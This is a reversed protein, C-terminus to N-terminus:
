NVQLLLWSVVAGLPLGAAFRTLNSPMLGTTWEFVLTAITPVACAFLLARRRSIDTACGKLAAHAFQAPRFAQAVPAGLIAAIAAGLYIGTCRACVPMHAAWLHFSREPKQHCVVAGVTYVLLAFAHTATSAHVRTAAYTSVPLMAVWVPAAVLYARRVIPM